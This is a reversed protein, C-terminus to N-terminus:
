RRPAMPHGLEALLDHLRQLSADLRSEIYEHHAKAGRNLRHMGLATQLDAQAEIVGDVVKEYIDDKRPTVPVPNPYGEKPPADPTSGPKLLQSSKPGSLIKIVENRVKNPTVDFDGQLIRVAGNDDHLLGLLVHETGIYNHGLHLAERLARELSKQARPTLKPPDDGEETLPGQSATRVLERAKEVEVNLSELARAALGNEERLLGILIHETGIYRVRNARAEEQALVVVQRARETFREYM